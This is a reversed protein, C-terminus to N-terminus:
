KTLTDIIQSIHPLNSFTTADPQPKMDNETFNHLDTAPIQTKQTANVFHQPKQQGAIDTPNVIASQKGVPPTHSFHGNTEICVVEECPTKCEKQTCENNTCLTKTHMVHGTQNDTAYNKANKNYKYTLRVSMNRQINPLCSKNKTIITTKSFNILRATNQMNRKIINNYNMACYINKKLVKIM